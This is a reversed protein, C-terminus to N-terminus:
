VSSKVEKTLTPSPKAYLVIGTIVISLLVFVIYQTGYFSEVIPDIKEKTKEKTKEDIVFCENKIIYDYCKKEAENGDKCHEFGQDGGAFYSLVAVVVITGIMAFVGLLYTLIAGLIIVGIIILGWIWSAMGWPRKLCISTSDDKDGFCVKQDETVDKKVKDMWALCPPTDNVFFKSWSVNNGM